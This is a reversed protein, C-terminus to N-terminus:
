KNIIINKLNQNFEYHGIQFFHVIAILLCLEQQRIYFM